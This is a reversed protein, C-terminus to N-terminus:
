GAQVGKRDRVEAEVKLCLEIADRINDLADQETEGQTIAAQIEQCTVTFGGDELDPTLVVTFQRGAITIKEEKPVALQKLEGKLGEIIEGIAFSFVLQGRKLADLIVGEDQTLIFLDVGNTIFRLEALPAEVEPFHKRLHSLAKRIKQLSIGEDRLRKATKLAVLDKFTYEKRTGRGIGTRGSPRVIGSKDWHDLQMRSVDTLAIVTKRSFSAM